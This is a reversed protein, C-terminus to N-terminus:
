VEFIDLGVNGLLDTNLPSKTPLFAGHTRGVVDCAAIIPSGGITAMWATITAAGSSPCLTPVGNVLYCQGAVPVTAGALATAASENVGANSDVTPHRASM